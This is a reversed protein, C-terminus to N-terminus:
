TQKLPQWHEASRARVEKVVSRGLSRVVRQIPEDIYAFFKKWGSCLYNLGPEGGQWSLVVEKFNQGEFYQRIFTELVEGSIPWNEPKGLLERKSLYYCYTCDLNCLAGTPKVMVHLRRVPKGRYLQEETM